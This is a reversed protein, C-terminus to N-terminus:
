NLVIKANCKQTDTDGDYVCRFHGNFIMREGDPATLVGHASLGYANKRTHDYAWAYIDNDTLVVDSTGEALPPNNLIYECPDFYDWIAAPWVSTIVDDGKTVTILLGEEAPPYNDQYTWWSGVVEGNCFAVIDRGVFAVYGRNWDTFYWWWGYAEDRFVHPGSQAPPGQALLPTAVFVCVLIALIMRTKM